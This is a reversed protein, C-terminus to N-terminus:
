KYKVLKKAVENLTKRNQDVFYLGAQILEYINKKSTDDMNPSANRLQPMLTAIWPKQNQFLIEIIEINSLDDLLASGGQKDKGTFNKRMAYGINMLDTGDGFGDTNALIRVAQETIDIGNDKALQRICAAAFSMAHEQEIMNRSIIKEYKLFGGSGTINKVINDAVRKSEEILEDIQKALEPEKQLQQKLQSNYKVIVKALYYSITGLSM